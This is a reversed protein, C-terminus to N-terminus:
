QLRCEPRRKSQVATVLESLIYDRVESPHIYASSTGKWVGRELTDWSRGTLKPTDAVHKVGGPSWIIVRHGRFIKYEWVGSPLHIKRRTM